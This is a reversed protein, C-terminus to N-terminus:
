KGATSNLLQRRWCIDVGVKLSNELIIKCLTSVEEAFLCTNLNNALQM